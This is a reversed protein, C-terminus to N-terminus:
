RPRRGRAARRGPAPRSGPAPRTTGRPLCPRSPKKTPWTIFSVSPRAFGFSTLSSSRWFSSAQAALEAAKAGARRGADRLPQLRSPAPRRAERPRRRGSATGRALAGSRTGRAEVGHSFGLDTRLLARHQAVPLLGPRQPARARRGVDARAADLPRGHGQHAPARAGYTHQFGLDMQLGGYYPGSRITGPARTATSASGPLCTRRIHRWAAHGSRATSGSNRVWVKYRHSPDKVAARTAPTRRLGMVSQWRWTARRYHHIQRVM